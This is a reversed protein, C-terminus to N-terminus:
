LLQQQYLIFYNGGTALIRGKISPIHAHEPHPWPVYDILSPDTLMAPNGREMIIKAEFIDYLARCPPCV